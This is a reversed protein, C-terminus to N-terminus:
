RLHSPMRGEFCSIYLNLAQQWDVVHFWNDIYDGRRNQYKLYYAHEWVDLLLVPCLGMQLVSDQNATTVIELHGGRGVVLWAWGSGFVSLASQKFAERFKEFSGFRKNIAELLPGFPTNRGRPPTMISFFLNHNWVGGANNHIATRIRQPLAGSYSILRELTWSHYTPYNELAENLNDLYTKLHKNHHLTMTSADIYPELADYDYPLPVMKFPYHNNM